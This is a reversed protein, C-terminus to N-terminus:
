SCRPPCPARDTRPATRRTSPAHVELREEAHEALPAPRRPPPRLASRFLARFREPHKVPPNRAAIDSWSKAARLAAPLVWIRSYSLPLADGQWPSPRPNLDRKGSWFVGLRGRPNKKSLNLRLQVPGCDSCPGARNCRADKINWGDLTLLADGSRVRGGRQIVWQTRKRWPYPVLRRVLDAYASAEQALARDELRELQERAESSLRM